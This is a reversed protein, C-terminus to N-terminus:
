AGAYPRRPPETRKSRELVLRWKVAAFPSPRGAREDPQDALRLAADAPDLDSPRVLPPLSNPREM